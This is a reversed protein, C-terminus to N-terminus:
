QYTISDFGGSHGINQEAGQEMNQVINQSEYNIHNNNTELQEMIKAYEKRAELKAEQKGKLTGEQKGENFGNQKGEKFGQNHGLVYGSRLGKDHADKFAQMLYTTVGTGIQLVSSTLQSLDYDQPNIVMEIKVANTDHEGTSNYSM